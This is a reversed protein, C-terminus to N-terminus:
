CVYEYLLNKEVHLYKSAVISENIKLVHASQRGFENAREYNM